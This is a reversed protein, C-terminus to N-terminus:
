FRKKSISILVSGHRLNLSGGIDFADNNIVVKKDRIEYGFSDTSNGGSSRNCDHQDAGVM